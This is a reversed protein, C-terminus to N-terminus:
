DRRPKRKVGPLTALETPEEEYTMSQYSLIGMIPDAETGQSAGTFTTAFTGTVTVKAGVAPLPKPLKVGWFTDLYEADEKGKDYEDIADFIQAFNSAWGLVKISENPPADKKDGVWFTPIPAVCNEPDAKGGKHVACEPANMLNTKTIYGGITIKKKAIEARHVRSRLYYSAGWVTYVDGNKIPRQPVNPVAPLNAKAGSVAERPKYKVEEGGCGTAFPVACALLAVGISRYISISM